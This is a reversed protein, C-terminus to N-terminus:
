KKGATSADSVLQMAKMQEAPVGQMYLNRTVDPNSHRLQSQINKDVVGLQHSETALGRRFMHYTIRQIGAKLAAPKLVRDLWNKSNIPTGDRSPFMFADPKGNGCWKQWENLDACVDDPIAINAQSAKTKVNAENGFRNIQRLVSIVSGHFDGWQVAFLEGRRLGGMYLLKVMLQDRKSPMADVLKQYEDLALYPREEPKVGDPMALKRAPNRTLAGEDAAFGLIARLYLLSHQIVSKSYKQEALKDLFAQMAADTMDKLPTDGFAPYLKSDLYYNVAYETTERWRPKRDPVFVNETFWRFTKDGMESPHEKPGRGMVRDCITLWKKKAASLSTLGDGHKVKQGLDYSGGYGKRRGRPAGEDAVHQQWYAVYRIGRETHKEEIWGNGIPGSKSLKRPM